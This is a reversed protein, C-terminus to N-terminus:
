TQSTERMFIGLEGNTGRFARLSGRSCSVIGKRLGGAPRNLALPQRSTFEFALYTYNTRAVRLEHVTDPRIARNAYTSNQKFLSNVTGYARM